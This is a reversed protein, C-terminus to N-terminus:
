EKSIEGGEAGAESQYPALGGNIGGPAGHKSLSGFPVEAYDKSVPLMDRGPLKPHRMVVAAHGQEVARPVHSSGSSSIAKAKFM